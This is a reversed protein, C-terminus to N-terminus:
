LAAETAESRADKIVSTQKKMLLSFVEFSEAAFTNLENTKKLPLRRALKLFDHKGFLKELDISKLEKLKVYNNKEFHHHWPSVNICIWLQQKKLQDLNNLLFKQTLRAENGSVLFTCSAFNGWWVMTRVAFLEKANFLKPFDFIVYPLGLYNEGKSIKGAIVDTNKPFKIKQFTSSSIIKIKFRNMQEYIKETILKKSNFFQQDKLLRMEKKSLKIKSLENRSKKKKKM